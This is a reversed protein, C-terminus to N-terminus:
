ALERPTIRVKFNRVFLNCSVIKNLFIFTNNIIVQDVFPLTMLAPFSKVTSVTVLISAATEYVAQTLRMSNFYRPSASM